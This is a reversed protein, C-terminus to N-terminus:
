LRRSIRTKSTHPLASTAPEYPQTVKSRFSGRQTARCHDGGASRPKRANVFKQVLRRAKEYRGTARQSLLHVGRHINANDHRYYDAIAEIVADPKQSTAANDLYVLPRGHVSELLIPFDRRVREVDFESEGIAGCRVRPMLVSTSM